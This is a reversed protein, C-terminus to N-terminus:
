AAGELYEALTDAAQRAFAPTVQSYIDGTVTISSHGLMEQVVRMPVGADLLLTACTHPAGHLRVPPLHLRKLMSRWHYKSVGDGRLPVGREDAFVFGADEYGDGAALREAGQRDRHRLLASATGAPVPLEIL